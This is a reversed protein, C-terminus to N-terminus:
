KMLVCKGTKQIRGTQLTYIYIGSTHKTANWTIRHIGPKTHQDHITEIFRGSLDYITLTVQSEKPIYYQFQTVPNFPNPYAGQLQFEEPFKIDESEVQIDVTKHWKVTGSFDVDGLRYEYTVGPQVANDTYQYDHKETTSGHGELEPDYLYSAIEQWNGTELKSNRRELMFGLNEIESETDWKLLVSGNRCEATFTSLEVPLSLDEAVVWSAGVITGNYSNTSNDTLLTGSGDSMKYYAVLGDENGVLEINMNDQIQSQTRVVNWIRVEDVKGTFYDDVYPWGAYIEAGILTETVSSGPGSFGSFTEGSPAGSARVVGNIYLQFNSGDATFAIHNWGSLVEYYYFKRTDYNGIATVWLWAYIYGDSNMELAWGGSETNGIITQNTSTTWDATYVWAEVSLTNSMFTGPLSVYDNIGDFNLAYGADAAFGPLATLICLVFTLQHRIKM